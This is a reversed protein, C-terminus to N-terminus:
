EEGRDIDSFAKEEVIGSDQNFLSSRNSGTEYEM